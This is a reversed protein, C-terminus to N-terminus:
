PYHEYLDGTTVSQVSFKGKQLPPSPAIYGLPETSGGGGEGFRFDSCGTPGEFALKAPGKCPKQRVQILGPSHHADQWRGGGEGTGILEHHCSM